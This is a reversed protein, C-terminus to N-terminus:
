GRRQGVIQLVAADMPYAVWHFRDQELKGKLAESSGEHYADFTSPLWIEERHVFQVFHSSKECGHTAHDGIQDTPEDGVRTNADAFLLRPWQAYKRPISASLKDWYDQIENHEAGSHPAHAM